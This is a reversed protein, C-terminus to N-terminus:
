PQKPEEAAPKPATAKKYYLVIQQQQKIYRKLEAVNLSLAEYDRMGLIVFVPNETGQKKKAENIFEEMNSATVVRVNVDIMSVPEPDAPQIISIEAPKTTVDISRTSACGALLLTAAGLAMTTRSLM